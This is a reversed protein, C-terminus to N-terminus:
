DPNCLDDPRYNNLEAHLKDSFWARYQEPIAKAEECNPHHYLGSRRDGLYKGYDADGPLHLGHVQEDPIFAPGPHQTTIQYTQGDASVVIHGHSGSTYLAAGSQQIRQLVPGHPYGPQTYDATVVVARPQTKQLLEQSTSYISGHDAAKLLTVPGPPVDALENQGTRDSMFLFTQGGVKLSAVLSRGAASQRFLDAQRSHVTFTVGSLEYVQGDAVALPVGRKALEEKFSTYFSEHSAGGSDVAQQVPFSRLVAALGGMHEERPTTALLLTLQKVGQNRLYTIVTGGGGKTPGADILINRDNLLQILIADGTGVDIFHIKALPLPQLNVKGDAYTVQYNLSEAIFRLPLYAKGQQVLPPVGTSVIKGNLWAMADGFRIKLVTGQKEIYATNADALYTVKAGLLESTARLPMLLRGQQSVTDLLATRGNVEVSTAALAPTALCLLILLLLWIKKTHM